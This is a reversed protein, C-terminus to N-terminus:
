MPRAIAFEGIAEGTAPHHHTWTAGETSDRWQGNILLRGTKLGLADVHPQMTLTM